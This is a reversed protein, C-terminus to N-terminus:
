FEVTENSIATRVVTLRNGETIVAEVWGIKYSSPVGLRFTIYFTENSPLNYCSPPYSIKVGKLSDFGESWGYQNEEYGSYAINMEGYENQWNYAKFDIIVDKKLGKPFPLTNYTGSGEQEDCSYTLSRTERPYTGHYDYVKPGLTEYRINSNPQGHISLQSNTLRLKIWWRTEGIPSPVSDIASSFEIDAAGDYNLDIDLYEIVYDDSIEAKVTQSEENVLMNLSNGFKYKFETDKKCSYVILITSFLILYRM